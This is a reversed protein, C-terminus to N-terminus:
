HAYKSGKAHKSKKGKKAAVHKKLKHRSPKHKSSKVIKCSTGRKMAKGSKGKPASKSASAVSVHKRAPERYVHAPRNGPSEQLASWTM